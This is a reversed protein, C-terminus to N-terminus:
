SEITSWKPWNGKNIIIYSHHPMNVFCWSLQFWIFVVFFNHICQKCFPATQVSWSSSYTKLYNVFDHLLTLSFYSLGQHVFTHNQKSCVNLYTKKRSLNGGVGKIGKQSKKRYGVMSLLKRVANNENKQSSHKTRISQDSMEVLKQKHRIWFTKQSWMWDGCVFNCRKTKVVAVPLSEAADAYTRVMDLILLLFASTYRM